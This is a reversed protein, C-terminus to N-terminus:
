DSINILEKIIFHYTRIQWFINAVRHWFPRFGNMVLKRLDPSTVSIFHRLNSLRFGVILWTFLYLGNM